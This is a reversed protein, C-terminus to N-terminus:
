TNAEMVRLILSMHLIFIFTFIFIFVYNPLIYITSTGMVSVLILTIYLSRFNQHCIFHWRVELEYSIDFCTRPSWTQDTKDCIDTSIISWQVAINGDLTSTFNGFYLVSINLEYHDFTNMNWYSYFHSLHPLPVKGQM